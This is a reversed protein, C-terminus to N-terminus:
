KCGYPQVYDSSPVKPVVPKDVVSAARAYPFRTLWRLNRLLVTVDQAFLTYSEDCFLRALTFIPLEWGLYSTMSGLRSPNQEINELPCIAGRKVLINRLMKLKDRRQESMWMTEYLHMRLGRGALRGSAIGTNYVSSSGTGFHSM